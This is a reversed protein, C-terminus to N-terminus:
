NGAVLMILSSFAQETTPSQRTILRCRRVTFSCAPVCSIGLAKLRAAGLFSESRGHIVIWSSFFQILSMLTKRKFCLCKKLSVPSPFTALVPEPVCFAQSSFSSFCTSSIKGAKPQPFFFHLFPFDFGRM